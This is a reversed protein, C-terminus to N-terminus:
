RKMIYRPAAKSVRVNVRRGGHQRVLVVLVLYTGIRVINFPPPTCSLGDKNKLPNPCQLITQKAHLTHALCFLHAQSRTCTITEPEFENQVREQSITGKDTQRTKPADVPSM